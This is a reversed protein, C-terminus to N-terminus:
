KSPTCESKECIIVIVKGLGKNEIKTCINQDKLKNALEKSVKGAFKEYNNGEIKGSVKNEVRTPIVVDYTRRSSTQSGDTSYKTSMKSITGDLIEAFPYPEGDFSMESDFNVKLNESLLFKVKGPIGDKERNQFFTTIEPILNDISANVTTEIQRLIDNAASTITVPTGNIKDEMLIPDKGNLTLQYQRQESTVKGEVLHVKLWINANAVKALIDQPDEKTKADRKSNESIEKTLQDMIDNLSAIRFGNKQLTPKLFGEISTYIAMKPDNIARQWDYSFVTGMDTMEEKAYGAHKMWAESPVILISPTIGMSESMKAASKIIGQAMLDDRLKGKLIYVTTTSKINKKDVKGAPKGTNTQFKNIHAFGGINSALYNKYFDINQNYNSMDSLATSASASNTKPYGKFIITFLAQSKAKKICDNIDSGQNTIDIAISGGDAQDTLAEFQYEEEWPLNTQARVKIIFLSFLVTVLIIRKM